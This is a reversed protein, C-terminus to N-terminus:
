NSSEKGAMESLQNIREKMKISAGKIQSSIMDIAQRNDKEEQILDALINISSLPNKLDHAITKLVKNKYDIAVQAAFHQEISESILHAITQLIETQVANLKRPWRDMICLTGVPKGDSTKLPMAAYFQLGFNGTVLPNQYTRVDNRANEIVLLENSHMVVDSLDEDGNIGYTELGYGAKVVATDGAGLVLLVVPVELSLAALKIIPDFSNGAQIDLSHYPATPTTTPTPSFTTM